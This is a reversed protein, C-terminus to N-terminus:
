STWFWRFSGDGGGTFSYVTQGASWSFAEGIHNGVAGSSSLGDRGTILQWLVDLVGFVLAISAV